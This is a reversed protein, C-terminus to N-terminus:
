LEGVEGTINTSSGFSKGAYVSGDELILHAEIAEPMTYLTVLM